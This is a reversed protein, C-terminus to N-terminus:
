MRPPFWRAKARYMKPLLSMRAITSSSQLFIIKGLRHNSGRFPWNFVRVTMPTVHLCTSNSVKLALFGTVCALGDRSSSLCNQPQCNRVTTPFDGVIGTPTAFCERQIRSCRTVQGSLLRSPVTERKNGLLKLRTKEAAM